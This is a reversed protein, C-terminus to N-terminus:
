HFTYGVAMGLQGGEGVGAWERGGMGKYTDSM